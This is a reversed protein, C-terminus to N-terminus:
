LRRDRFLDALEFLREAGVEEYAGATADYGCFGTAGEGLVGGAAQAGDLVRRVADALEVAIRLPVTASPM